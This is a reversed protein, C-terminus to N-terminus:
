KNNSTQAKREGGFIKEDTILPKNNTLFEAFQECIGRLAKISRRHDYVYVEPYMDGYILPSRATGGKMAFATFEFAQVETVKGSEILTYPYVHQQWYKSYKGFDYKSTTKLDYVMNGRVYDPYGYLLVKGYKTDIPAETYIQCLSDSFYEALRKCFSTDFLFEYAGHRAYIFSPLSINRFLNQCETLLGDDPVSIDDGKKACYLDGGSRISRVVIDDRTSRVGLVICDVIENLCSGKSAAESEFSVRNIRDILEQFKQREYDEYALSPEESHGFFREYNAECDLYNQFSDIISPSFKFAYESM